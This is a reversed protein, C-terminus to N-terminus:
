NQLVDDISIIDKGPRQFFVNKTLTFINQQFFKPNESKNLSIHIKVWMRSTVFFQQKLYIKITFIKKSNPKLNRIKLDKLRQYSIDQFDPGSITFDYSLLVLDFGFTLESM